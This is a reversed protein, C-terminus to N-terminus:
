RVFVPSSWALAGDRQVVRVYLYEGDTLGELAWSTALEMAGDASVRELVEGSRILDLREIPGTGVVRVNLPASAPLDAAAVTAGMGSGALDVFLLIRPGSTAYVRRARLAALVGSRTCDSTLIAAVGGTGMHERGGGPGAASYGYVPSLHPLGPHGDHSDGSGIFGLEVGSDLVDRVFNGTVAGRLRSPSDAAESSGHVSMIETVPELEPDPRFSWNTPIPDGASHHAFTLAQRGRLRDWLQRPTETEPDLSSIVEGEDEFYVVHRHGHIWSTWEFGLLTVFRGPDHFATVQARIEAWMEPRQDLFLVGFHDHDTLCVVDLAAVDRAYRFYDEPLGTGDSYNSHGHLDGWLVLEAGSDVLIPNSTTTLERAGLDLVARVRHVGPPAGRLEVTVSGHNAAPLPVTRRLNWGSDGLVELRVEGAVDTVVNGGRDLVAITIRAGAGPRVVSTATAVLRAPPGPLVDITPSDLLMRRVGDGDGDVGVWLRAGREAHRDVLAGVEGAGYELTITEGEVLARGEVVVILMAGALSESALMVDRADTRVRTFGPRRPEVVQPPSWGWFPEPMFYLAGGEAIGLPGATYVLTFTGRTGLAISRLGRELRISGGGDSPHRPAALDAKFEEVQRWRATPPRLVDVPAPREVAEPGGDQGPPAADDCGLAPALLLAGLLLTAPPPPPSSQM